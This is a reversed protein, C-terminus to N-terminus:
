NPFLTTEFEYRSARFVHWGYGIPEGAESFETRRMTVLAAHLAEDLMEAEEASAIKAGVQQNAVKPQAGKQRLLEYLGERELEETTPALDVPLWNTLIALPEGNSFRLRRLKVVDDGVAIELAEAVDQPAPLVEHSLVVTTSQKGAQKLDYHLSSLGSPRHVREPAVRTGVGRQRVLRGSDVLEQMAQRATPRSVKLRAALAIENELPDGPKLVGNDIAAKISTAIQHYLPVPSSRDIAFRISASM